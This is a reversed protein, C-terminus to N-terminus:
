DAMLMNYIMQAAEARTANRLPAFTGDGDGLVIGKEYLAFVASKAYDSIENSDYFVDKENDSPDMKGARFLLVAMDQRTIQEDPLFKGDETGTAIGAKYAAAVYPAFWDNSSVDKFAGEYEAEEFGFALTVMKIFEARTTPSDPDFIGEAKGSIVNKDSLYSIADNAWEFGALDTFGAVNSSDDTKEESVIQVTSVSGGSSGGRSGGGSSGKSGSDKKGEAYGKVVKDFESIYDDIDDFSLDVLDQYAKTQNADSLDDFKDMNVTILEPLAETIERIKYDKGENLLVVLGTELMDAKLMDFDEAAKANAIIGTYLAKYSMAEKFYKGMVEEDHDTDTVDEYFGKSDAYKTLWADLAEKDELEAAEAIVLFEKYNAAIQQASVTVIEVNENTEYNEPLEYEGADIMLNAFVKQGEELDFLTDDGGTFLSKYDYMADIIDDKDKAKIADNVAKVAEFRKDAGDYTYVVETEANIFGASIYITYDGSPTTNEFPIGTFEFSVKGGDASGTVLQEAYVIEDQFSLTLVVPVSGKTSEVSGSILLESSEINFVPNVTIKSVIEAGATIFSCTLSLILVLILPIKIFKNM